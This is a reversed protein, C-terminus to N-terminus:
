QKRKEARVAESHGSPPNTRGGEAEPNGEALQDEPESSGSKPM